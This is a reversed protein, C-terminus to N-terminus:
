LGHHWFDPAPFPIPAEYSLIAILRLTSSFAERSFGRGSKMASYLHFLFFLFIFLPFYFVKVSLFRVSTRRGLFAAFPGTDELAGRASVGSDFDQPQRSAKSFSGDDHTWEDGAFFPLVVIFFLVFRAGFREASVSMSSM